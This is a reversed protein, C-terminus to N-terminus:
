ILRRQEDVFFYVPEHRAIERLLNMVGIVADDNFTIHTQYGTPHPYFQPWGGNQYQAALLYDLGKFFSEKFREDGTAKVMRGLYALQTYTSQNDITADSSKKQRTLDSKDKESLVSAMEINKPWGGCDRQYLILNDAIRMAEESTYWRAKQQSLRWKLALDGDIASFVADRIPRWLFLRCGFPPNRNSRDGM